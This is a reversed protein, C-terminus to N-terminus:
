STDWSAGLPFQQAKLAILGPLTPPAGRIRERSYDYFNVGLKKTTSLLTQFTDWAQAGRATRPGFSADRKRVRLRAGLEAPNNHLPIEPHALVMLLHTKKAKTQAMREDLATYGTVQSFLQDFQRTLREAEGSSPAQRYSLLQRYFGWFEELLRELLKRHHAFHPELKKFHRGTHVWCLALEETVLKFQPADDGVLLRVVPHGVEAHYAAVAAAEWLYRRQRPKLGPVHQEVLCQWEAERLDGDQLLSKLRVMAPARFGCRELFGMAEDNLRYGPERLNRLVQLVTLRDNKPTTFFATYLPNCVVHCHQNQGNVRTSTEDLHQWPSSRLGAEYLADKEAHFGEQKAILLNSVQGASIRIGVNAFWEAMKPQTMNCGYAFVMALAKIGPGFGGEYGQPVPALYTKGAEASYYKAKRFEVNDTCIQLDQVVVSEYGKWVADPPLTQPDLELVEERDIRIQEVKSSKKWEKPTRREQESSHRSGGPKDLRNAQIDPKGQEGKLRNVEDRLRQNEARLERLQGLVTELLNLLRRICERARGEQISSLDLDQLFKDSIAGAALPNSSEPQGIGKGGEFESM